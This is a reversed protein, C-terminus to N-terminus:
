RGVGLLSKTLDTDDLLGDAPGTWAVRGDEIVLAADRASWFPGPGTGPETDPGAHSVLEGINTILTSM